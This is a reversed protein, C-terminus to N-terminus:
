LACAVCLTATPAIDLPAKPIAEGCRECWRYKGKVICRLPLNIRRKEVARRRHTQRAMAQAQIADMRSLRGVSHQDLEVPGRSEASQADLADMDKMRRQLLTAYRDTNNSKVFSSRSKQASFVINIEPQTDGATWHSPFLM